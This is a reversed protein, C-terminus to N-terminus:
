EYYLKRIEELKKLREKQKSGMRKGKAELETIESELKDENPLNEKSWLHYIVLADVKHLNIREQNYKWGKGRGVEYTLGEIESIGTQVKNRLFKVTNVMIGDIQKVFDFVYQLCIIAGILKYLNTIGQHQRGYIYNTNEFIIINPKQEKILSIIFKLHEKWSKAQFEQFAFREYSSSKNILCIGTTGTGSPDISLIKINKKLDNMILEQKIILQLKM